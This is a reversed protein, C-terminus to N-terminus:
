HHNCFFISIVVVIVVIHVMNGREKDVRDSTANNRPALLWGSGFTVYFHMSESGEPASFASGKELGCHLSHSHTHTVERSVVASVGSVAAITQEDPHFIHGRNKSPYGEPACHIPFFSFNLCPKGLSNVYTTRPFNTM